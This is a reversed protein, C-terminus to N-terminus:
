EAGGALGSRRYGKILYITGPDDDDFSILFEISDARMGSPTVTGGYVVKGNTITVNCDYSENPVPTSSGFTQTAADCPIKVKFDWFNGLDEMWMETPLNAATNYNIIQFSGLGYPDEAIINGSADALNATVMWEGALDVTATDGIEEKDCSSFAVAFLAIFLYKLTKIM